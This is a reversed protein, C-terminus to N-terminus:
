TDTDTQKPKLKAISDMVLALLTNQKLKSAGIVESILYFAAWFIPNSLLDQM